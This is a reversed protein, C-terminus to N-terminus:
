IVTFCLWSHSKSYKGVFPKFSCNNPYKIQEQNEDWNKLFIALYKRVRVLVIFLSTPFENIFILSYNTIYVFFLFLIRLIHVAYYIHSM